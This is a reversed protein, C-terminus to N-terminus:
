DLHKLSSNSPQRSLLLWCFTAIFVYSEWYICNTVGFGFFFYITFLRYLGNNNKLNTYSILYLFFLFAFPTGFILAIELYSNDSFSYGGTSISSALVTRSSGIFFNTFSEFILSLALQIKEVRGGFDLDYRFIEKSEIKFLAVFGFICIVTILLSYLNVLRKKKLFICFLLVCLGGIFPYRSGGLSIAYIMCLQLPWFVANIFKQNILKWFALAFMAILIMNGSTSAGLLMNRTIEGDFIIVNEGSDNQEILVNSFFHVNIIFIISALMGQIILATALFKRSDERRSFFEAMILYMPFTLIYRYDLVNISEEYVVLSIKLVLFGLLVIGLLCAIQNIRNIQTLNIVFVIAVVFAPIAVWASKSFLYAPAIHHALNSIPAIVILLAIILISYKNKM